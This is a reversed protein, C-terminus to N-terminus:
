PSSVPCRVLRSKMTTIGQPGRGWGWRSNVSFISADNYGVDTTNL